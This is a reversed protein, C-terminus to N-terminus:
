HVADAPGGTSVLCLAQPCMTVAMGTQECQPSGSSARATVATGPGPADSPPNSRVRRAAAGRYRRRSVPGALERRRAPCQAPRAFWPLHCATSSFHDRCWSAAGPQGYDPSRTLSYGGRAWSKGNRHQDPSVTENRSGCNCFTLCETVTRLLKWPCETEGTSLKGNTSLDARVGNASYMAHVRLTVLNAALNVLLIFLLSKRASLVM